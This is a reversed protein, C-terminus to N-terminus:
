LRIIELFDCNFDVTNVWIIKNISFFSNHNTNFSQNLLRSCVIVYIINDFELFYLFTYSRRKANSYLSFELAIKLFQEILFFNVFQFIHCDFVSFIKMFVELTIEFHLISVQLNWDLIHWNRNVIHIFM